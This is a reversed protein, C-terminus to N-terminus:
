NTLLNNCLLQLTRFLVKPHQSLRLTRMIYRFYTKRNIHEGVQQLSQLFLRAQEFARQCKIKKIIEREFYADVIKIVKKHMEIANGGLLTEQTTTGDHVRYEALVDNLFVIPFRHAIRIWMEWDEVWDLRRDFGGLKEYVERRVVMAPTQIRQAIAIREAFNPIIGDEYQEIGTIRLWKSYEDIYVSRCFAAGANPHKEFLEEMKQYFGNRVKDDGHLQHILLGRSLKLGTEYNRVKGVNVKQKVFQVRGQGLEKVVKEPNDKTSCDDVVVIEMKEIGPDQELVSQLTEELFVACNYTPILVSWHPRPVGPAVPPIKAHYEDRFRPDM